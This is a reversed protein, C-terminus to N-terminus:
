RPPTGGDRDPPAPLTRSRQYTRVSRLHGHLTRVSEEVLRYGAKELVRCSAANDAAAIGLIRPLAFREEAWESFAGVAESAFGLGQRSEEIAYGIEVDDGLPSLGAHGIPEASGRLCVALVYPGLVPTGPDRIAAILRRLVVLAEAENEYVQDPLWVRSGSERSMAFMKSVDEPVFRRLELNPSVIRPDANETM